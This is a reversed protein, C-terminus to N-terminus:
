KLRDSEEQQKRANEAMGTQTNAMGTGMDNTVSGKDGIAYLGASADDLDVANSVAWDAMALGHLTEDGLKGVNDRVLQAGGGGQKDHGAFYQHEFPQGYEKTPGWPKGSELQAIREVIGKLSGQMDEARIGMARLHHQALSADPINTEQADKNGM